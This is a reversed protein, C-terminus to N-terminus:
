KAEEKLAASSPRYIGIKIVGDPLTHRTGPELFYEDTMTYTQQESQATILKIHM